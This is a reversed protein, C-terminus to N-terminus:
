QAGFAVRARAAAVKWSPYAGPMNCGPPAAAFGDIIARGAAIRRTRQQAKRGLAIVPTNPFIALQAALYETGCHPAHPAPGTTVPASCLVSETIWTRIMQNRLDLGPWCLDLVARVNAHYQSFRAEMQRYTFECVRSLSGRLDDADVSQKEGARPDGPEATVIILKVDERAGLAGVFGRPVHGVSPNWQAFPSCREVFGPCPRLSHTLIDVLPECPLYNM